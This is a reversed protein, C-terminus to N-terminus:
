IRGWSGGQLSLLGGIVIIIWGGTKLMTPIDPGGGEHVAPTISVPESTKVETEAKEETANAKSLLGSM